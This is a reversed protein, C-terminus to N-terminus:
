DIKIKEKRMMILDDLEKRSISNVRAEEMIKVIEELIRIEHLRLTIEEKDM